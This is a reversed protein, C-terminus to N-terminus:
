ISLSINDDKPLIDIFSNCDIVKTQLDIGGGWINKQSSGQEVPSIKGYFQFNFPLTTTKLFIPPSSSPEPVTGFWRRLGEMMKRRREERSVAVVAYGQRVDLAGYSWLDYRDRVSIWLMREVVEIKARLRKLDVEAESRERATRATATDILVHGLKRYLAMSLSYLVKEEYNLWGLVRSGFLSVEEVPEHFEGAKIPDLSVPM